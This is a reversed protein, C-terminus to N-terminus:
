ATNITLDHAFVYKKLARARAIQIHIPNQADFFSDYKQLYAVGIQEATQGSALLHQMNETEDGFYELYPGLIKQETAGLERESALAEIYDFLRVRRLRVKMEERKLESSVLEKYGESETFTEVGRARVIQQELEQLAEDRVAVEAERDLTSRAAFNETMSYSTAADTSQDNAIPTRARHKFYLEGVDGISQGIKGVSDNRMARGLRFDEGYYSNFARNFTPAIDGNPMFYALRGSIMPSGSRIRGELLDGVGARYTSFRYEDLTSLLDRSIDPVEEGGLDKKEGEHVGPVYDAESINALHSDDDYFHKLTAFHSNAYQTDIDSLHVIVEEDPVEANKFTKALQLSHLRLKGYDVVPDSSYIHDFRIELQDKAIIEQAVQKYTDPLDLEDIGETDKASLLTLLRTTLHDEELIDPTLHRDVANENILLVAGIKEQGLGFQTNLASLFNTLNGNHLEARVPAVVMNQVHSSFTTQIPLEEERHNKKPPTPLEIISTEGRREIYNESSGSSVTESM